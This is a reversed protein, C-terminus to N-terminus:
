TWIRNFKLTWFLNAVTSTDSNNRFILDNGSSILRRNNSTNGFKFVPSNNDALFFTNDPPGRWNGMWINMTNVADVRFDAYWIFMASPLGSFDLLVLNTETAITQATVPSQFSTVPTPVPDVIGAGGRSFQLLGINDTHEFAYFKTEDDATSPQLGTSHDPMTLQDHKGSDATDPSFPYHDINFKNNLDTFNNLIAQQSDSLFDTPQPIGPNYVM